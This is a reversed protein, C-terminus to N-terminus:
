YKHKHVYWLRISSDACIDIAMCTIKSGLAIICRFDYMSFREIDGYRRHRVLSKGCRRLSRWIRNTHMDKRCCKQTRSFPQPPFYMM